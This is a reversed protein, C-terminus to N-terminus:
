LSSRTRTLTLLYVAKAGGESALLRSITGATAGSRFLDDVLLVTKGATKTSDVAFADQLIETRKTLEFVDKLQVTSKVKKICSECLPIGCRDSLSAAVEIVPQNRRSTNSPPVPVLLDPKLKWKMSLFDSATEVIEALAAKDGRYKLRYVLEGIPSRGTDFVPNGYENHGLFTSGTTHVDLAFGSAWPGRLTKPSIKVAMTSLRLRNRVM